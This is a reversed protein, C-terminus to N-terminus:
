AQRIPGVQAEADQLLKKLIIASLTEPRFQRGAVPPGYDPYGMRRKVHTAVLDPRELRLDLAPAGVVAEGAGTLYVASPTLVDGERNPLMAPRGRDDLHAIASYTTGLDIGVTTM